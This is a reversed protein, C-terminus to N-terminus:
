TVEGPRALLDAYAWGQAGDYDITVYGNEAGERTLTVLSGEPMGTLPEADVSPGSRLLLPTLTVRADSDFTTLPADTPAAPVPAATDVEKPSAVLGLAVVWGTRGNYTVRMYENSVSGSVPQVAAGLPVSGIIADGSGPGKRLNLDTAAYRVPQKQPATTQALGSAPLLTLSLTLAVLALRARSLMIRRPVDVNPM